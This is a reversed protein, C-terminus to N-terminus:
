YPLFRELDAKWVRRNGRHTFVLSFDYRATKAYKAPPQVVGLFADILPVSVLDVYRNTAAMSAPRTEALALDRWATALDAEDVGCARAEDELSLDPRTKLAPHQYPSDSLDPFDQM